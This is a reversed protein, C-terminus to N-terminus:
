SVFVGKAIPANEVTKVIANLAINIKTKFGCIALKSNSWALLKLIIGDPTSPM